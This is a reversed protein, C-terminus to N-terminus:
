FACFHVQKELEALFYDLDSSWMEAWTTSQLKQFYLNSLLLKGTAGM